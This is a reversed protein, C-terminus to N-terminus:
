DHYYDLPRKVIFKLIKAVYALVLCGIFAFLAWFGFAEEFHFHGHRHIALELAISGALWATLLLWWFIKMGKSALWSTRPNQRM